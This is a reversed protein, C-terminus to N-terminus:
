DIYGGQFGMETLYNNGSMNDTLNVFVRDDTGSALQIGGKGLHTLDFYAWLYEGDSGPRTFDFVEWKTAALMIQPNSKYTRTNVTYTVGDIEIEVAIGNTLTSIGGFFGHGLPSSAFAGIALTYGTLLFDRVPKFGFETNNGTWNQNMATSGVPNLDERFPGSVAEIIELPAQNSVEVTGEVPLPIPSDITVNQQLVPQPRFINQPM